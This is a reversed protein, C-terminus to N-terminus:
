FRIVKNHNMYEDVKIKIVEEITKPEGNYRIVSIKAVYDEVKSLVTAQGMQTEVVVYFGDESELVTGVEAKM